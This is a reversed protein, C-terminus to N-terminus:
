LLKEVNRKNAKPQLCSRTKVQFSAVYNKKPTIFMILLEFWFFYQKGEENPEENQQSELDDNQTELLSNSVIDQSELENGSGRNNSEDRGSRGRINRIM